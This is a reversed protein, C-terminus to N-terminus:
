FEDLAQIRAPNALKAQWNLRAPRSTGSSQQLRPKKRWGAALSRLSPIKKQTGQGFQGYIKGALEPIKQYLLGSEWMGSARTRNRDPQEAALDQLQTM